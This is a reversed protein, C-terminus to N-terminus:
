RHSGPVRVVAADGDFWLADGYRGPARTAGRIEGPNGNGSADAATTGSGADFSYGAVLGAAPAVPTAMDRRIETESLARDYM